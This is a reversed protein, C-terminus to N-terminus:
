KLKSFDLKNAASGVNELGKSVGDLRLAQKLKDLTSMSTQVNKEFQSNDFQMSVVKEDITKSM